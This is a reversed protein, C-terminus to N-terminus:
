ASLTPTSGVDSTILWHGGIRAVQMDSATIAVVKHTELDIHDCEFYLTGKDGDVSERIKFAPTDLVWQPAKPFVTDAWFRRIEAKGTLTQGPGVTFTSNPAWLSMMLAIDKQSISKHWNREIQDIDYFDAKRQLEQQSSASSGGGCATLPIVVAALLCVSLVMRM